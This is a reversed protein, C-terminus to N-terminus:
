KMQYAKLNNITVDANKCFLSLNTPTENTVFTQCLRNEIYLQAIDHKVILKFATARGPELYARAADFNGVVDQPIFAGNEIPGITTRAFKPNGIETLIASQGLKFGGASPRWVNARVPGRAPFVSVTITGELYLGKGADFNLFANEAFHDTLKYGPIGESCCNVTEPCIIAEGKLCDNGEWWDLFMGDPECKAKHLLGAWCHEDCVATSVLLDGNENDYDHVFGPLCSVFIRGPVGNHGSLRNKTCPKFPGEPNESEFVFAGYGYNGNFPACIGGMLYWRGNVKECGGVEMERTEDLGCWDIVPPPCNEWNIGDYSRRLGCLGGFETKPIAVIYGLYEGTHNETVYMHDWREHSEYWRTDPHDYGIKQWHFLDQSVAYGMTDNHEIGNVVEGSKSGYNMYFKNGIKAIGCKWVPKSDTLVSGWDEWHVGDKSTALRCAYSESTGEEYYMTFMYFTDHYRIVTPDWIRGKSPRYLM